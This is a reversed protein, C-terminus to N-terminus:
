RQEYCSAFMFLGAPSQCIKHLCVIICAAAFVDPPLRQFEYRGETLVRYITKPSLIRSVRDIAAYYPSDFKQFRM